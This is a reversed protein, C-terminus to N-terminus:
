LRSSHNDSKRPLSVFGPKHTMEGIKSVAQDTTLLELPKRFDKM